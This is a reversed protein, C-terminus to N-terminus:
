HEKTLFTCSYFILRISQNLMDGQMIFRCHQVRWLIFSFEPDFWIDVWCLFRDGTTGYVFLEVHKQIAKM